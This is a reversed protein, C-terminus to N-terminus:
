AATGSMAHREHLLQTNDVFVRKNRSNREVGTGPGDKPGIREAGRTPSLNEGYFRISRCGNPRGVDDKVEAVGGVRCEAIEAVAENFVEENHAAPQTFGSIKRVFQLAAAEIEDHPAPEAGERLRKITRCM